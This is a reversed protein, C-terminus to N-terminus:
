LINGNRGACGSLSGESGSDSCLYRGCKWSSGPTEADSRNEKRSESEPFHNGESRHDTQFEGTLVNASDSTKTVAGDGVTTVGTLPFDSDGYTKTGPWEADNITISSAAKKITATASSPINVQYNDPDATAGGGSAAAGTIVAKSADIVVEKNTGANENKFAATLGTIQLKENGAGTNVDTDIMLPQQVTATTTGDYTKDEVAVSSLQLQYKSIEPVM